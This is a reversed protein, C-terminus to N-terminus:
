NFMNNEFDMYPDIWDKNYKACRCIRIYLVVKLLAKVKAKTEGTYSILFDMSLYPILDINSVLAFLLDYTPDGLLGISDIAAVFKEKQKIFNHTGFDGHILKKDFPYKELEEIAENVSPLLYNFDPLYNSAEQVENKLFDTWSNVPSHLYGFKEHPYAKYHSVINKISNALDNFDEVTHMVDGTVFDYVVYKYDKDFYAVKQLMPVNKYFNAFTVDAKLIETESQKIIYSDNLLIIRSQTGDNFYKHSHYSIRLNKCADNIINFDLLEKTVVFKDNEDFTYPLVNVIANKNIKESIKLTALKSDDINEAKIESKVKDEDICLIVYDKLTSLSLNISSIDLFKYCTIFGDRLLCGEGYFGKESEEYWENKQAFHLIIM